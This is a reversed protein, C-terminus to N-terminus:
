GYRKVQKVDSIRTWGDSTIVPPPYALAELDEYSIAQGNRRLDIVDDPSGFEEAVIHALRLASKPDDTSYDAFEGNMERYVVTFMENQEERQM